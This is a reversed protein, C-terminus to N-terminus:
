HHREITQIPISWPYDRFALMKEILRKSAHKGMKRRGEPTSALASSASFMAAVTLAAEMLEGTNIMVVRNEDMSITMVANLFAETLKQQYTM